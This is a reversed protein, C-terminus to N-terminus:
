RTTVQYDSLSQESTEFRIISSNPQSVQGPQTCKYQGKYLAEEIRHKWRAKERQYLTTKRNPNFSLLIPELLLVCSKLKKGCELNYNPIFNDLVSIKISSTNSQLVHHSYSITTQLPQYSTSMHGLHM